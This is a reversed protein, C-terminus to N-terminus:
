ELEKIRKDLRNVARRNREAIERIEDEQEARDSEVRGIEEWAEGLNQRLDKVVKVLKQFDERSVEKM